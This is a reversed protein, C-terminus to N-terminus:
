PSAPSPAPPHTPSPAPPRTAAVTEVTWKPYHTHLAALLRAHGEAHGSLIRVEAPRYAGDRRASLALDLMQYPTGGDDVVFHAAADNVRLVHLAEAIRMGEHHEVRLTMMAGAVKREAEDFCLPVTKGEKVLGDRRSLCAVRLDLGPEHIVLPVVRKRQGAAHIEGDLVAPRVPAVAAVPDRKCCCGGILAITLSLLLWRILPNM